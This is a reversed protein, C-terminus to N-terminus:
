LVLTTFVFTKKEGTEVEFVDLEVERAICVKMEFYTNLKTAVSMSNRVDDLTASLNFSCAEVYHVSTM